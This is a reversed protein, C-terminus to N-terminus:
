ATLPQKVLKGGDYPKRSQLIAFVAHALKRAVAVLAQKKAKGSKLLREKFGKLHPCFRSASLSCLYLLTRLRGNCRASVRSRARISSGSETQRPVLGAYRALGRSGRLSGEPLNALIQVSASVGIGPVSTLLAHSESLESDQSLLSLISEWVNLVALDLGVCAAELGKRASAPLSPSRLRSELSRLESRLDNWASVLRKLEQVKARPVEVAQGGCIEGYCALMRADIKDTKHMKGLALGLQKVKFCDAVVVPIKLDDLFLRLATEHGGTPELVVTFSDLEVWSRFSAFGEPTQAFRASRGLCFADIWDKSVDVGVFFRTVSKM